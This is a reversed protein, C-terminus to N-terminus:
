ANDPSWVPHRWFYDLKCACSCRRIDPAKTAGDNFQQLSFRRVMIELRHWRQEANDIIIVRRKGLTSGRYSVRESSVVKALQAYLNDYVKERLTELFIGVEPNRCLLEKLM